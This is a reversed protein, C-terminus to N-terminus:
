IAGLVAIVDVNHKVGFHFCIANAFMACRSVMKVLPGTERFDRFSKPGSFGKTFSRGPQEIFRPKEYTTFPIFSLIVTFNRAETNNYPLGLSHESQNNRPWSKATRVLVTETSVTLRHIKTKSRLRCIWFKCGFCCFFLTFITMRWM